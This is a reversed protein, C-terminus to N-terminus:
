LWVDEILLFEPERTPHSIISLVEFRLDKYEKNQELFEEAARTLFRFKNKSVNEEPFHAENSQRSKVEIIRLLDDKKAIIDIEYRSYKWNRHLIEYGKERLYNVAMEEAAKGFENHTAM